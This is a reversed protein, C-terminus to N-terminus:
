KIGEERLLRLIACRIFISESDQYKEYNRRVARKIRKRDARRLNFSVKEEFFPDGGM